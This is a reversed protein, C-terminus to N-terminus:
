EGEKSTGTGKALQPHVGYVSHWTRRGVVKRRPAFGGKEDNSRRLAAETAAEPRVGLVGPAGADKM